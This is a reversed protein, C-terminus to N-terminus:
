PYGCRLLPRSRQFFVKRANQQTEETKNQLRFWAGYSYEIASLKLNNREAAEGAIALGLGTGSPKTSFQPEFILQEDILSPDIGPGSDRYDIYDLNQDSMAIRIKRSAPSFPHHILLVM